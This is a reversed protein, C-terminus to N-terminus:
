VSVTSTGSALYGIDRSMIGSQELSLNLIPRRQIATIPVTRRRRVRSQTEVLMAWEKFEKLTVPFRDLIQDAFSACGWEVIWEEHTMVIVISIPLFLIFYDDIRKSPILGAHSISSRWCM